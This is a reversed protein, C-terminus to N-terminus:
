RVRPREEASFSENGSLARADALNWVAGNEHFVGQTTGDSESRVMLSSIFNGVTAEEIVSSFQLYPSRWCTLIIPRNLIEQTQRALELQRQLLVEDGGHQQLQLLDLGLDQILRHDELRNAGFTLPLSKRHRSARLFMQRTFKFEATTQPRNVIELALVRHEHSWRQMFWNVYDEVANWKSAEGITGAGPSPVTCDFLVPLIRIKHHWASHLLHYLSNELRNRDELWFEYSLFIRLANLKLKAAYGLDREITARDYRQWMEHATASPATLYVAGRIKSADDITM